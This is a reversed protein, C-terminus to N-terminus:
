EDLPMAELKCSAHKYSTHQTHSSSFGNNLVPFLVNVHHLCCITISMTACMLHLENKCSLAVLLVAVAEVSSVCLWVCSNLPRQDPGFGPYALVLLFV